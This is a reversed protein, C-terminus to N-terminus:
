KFCNHAVLTYRHSKVHCTLASNTLFKRKCIHCSLQKASEDHVMQHKDLREKTSFRKYCQVCRFPKDAGGNKNITALSHAQSADEFGANGLITSSVNDACSSGSESTVTVAPSNKSSEMSKEFHQNENNLDIFNNNNDNEKLGSMEMAAGLSHSSATLVSGDDSCSETCNAAVIGPSEICLNDSNSLEPISTDLNNQINGSSVETATKNHKKLHRNRNYVHNFAM